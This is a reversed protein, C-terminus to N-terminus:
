CIKRNNGAYVLKAEIRGVADFFSPKISFM